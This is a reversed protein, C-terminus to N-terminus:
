ATVPSTQPEPSPDVVCKQFRELIVSHVEDPDGAPIMQLVAMQRLRMYSKRQRHMFNIPYEPKRARAVEPVADLVYALDPRPSLRLLLKAYARALWSEMPMAALQDYIYRDFIIVGGDQSKAHAVIRRLNLVDFVYLAARGFLLPWAQANKDNRKAPQEPTGISGDSQLVIRSFGSRLRPFMVVNDWFTLETVPIGADALYSRLKQIQTSKGAGDIGSFSIVIPKLIKM